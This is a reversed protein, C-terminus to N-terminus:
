LQEKLYTTFSRKSREKNSLKEYDNYYQKIRALFDRLDNPNTKQSLQEIFNQHQHYSLMAALSANNWEKAL